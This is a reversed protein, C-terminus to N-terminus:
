EHNESTASAQSGSAAASVRRLREQIVRYGDPDRDNRRSVVVGDSTSEVSPRSWRARLRQVATEICDTLQTPYLQWLRSPHRDIDDNFGTPYVLAGLAHAWVSWALALGFAARLLGRRNRVWWGWALASLLVLAPVAETLLRYGFSHGGWWNGWKSYIALTLLVSVTLYRLVPEEGRRWLVVAGAAVSFLFIPSFVFLGRAPSLLLGALGSLMRGDFGQADQGQGMWWVSGWYAQSYMALAVAPIAALVAFGLFQRRRHVLVYMALPLAALLNVPRNVVALALWLGAWPVARDPARVLCCLAASLFLLSPGHQFLGVGAVSWATTAFAYVMAFAFAHRDSACVRRLLLFMFLVSLSTVLGSTLLSLRERRRYLDVGLRDAAAYVPVNVLGPLVPYNSVVRGRVERFYYPLPQGPKVFEDFDLDHERLVSIPLLEAPVTDGSGIYRHPLVYVLLPFLVAILPLVTRRIM